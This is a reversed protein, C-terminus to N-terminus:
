ADGTKMRYGVGRITEIFDAETGLKKRLGFVHTDIARDVVSVGEGQVLEILKDRSLVKGQNQMLAKLLKFESPTLNLKETGVSVDYTQTHLVLSGIKLVPNEEVVTELQSRRLLARVRALFVPIEFPKTVYDDAGAELGRIIDASDARATVMLIPLKAKQQGAWKVLELGSVGPLMWDVVALDFSSDASLAKMAKEAEDFGAIEYGERKLHLAILERVDTEDEVVLIKFKKM